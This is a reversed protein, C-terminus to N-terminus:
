GTGRLYRLGIFVVMFGITTFLISNVFFIEPNDVNIKRINDLTSFFGSAEPSTYNVDPMNIHQEEVNASSYMFIWTGYTAALIVVIAMIRIDAFSM